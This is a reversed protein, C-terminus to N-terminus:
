QTFGFCYSPLGFIAAFYGVGVLFAAILQLLWPGYRDRIFGAPWGFVSELFINVTFVTGLFVSSIHFFQTVDHSFASFAYEYPSIMFMALFAGIFAFWRSFGLIQKDTLQPSGGM